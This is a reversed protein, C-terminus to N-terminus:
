SCLCHDLLLRREGECVQEKETQRLSLSHGGPPFPSARDRPVAGPTTQLRSGRVVRITIARSGPPTATWPEPSHSQGKELPLATLAM